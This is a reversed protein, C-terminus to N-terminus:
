KQYLGTTLVINGSGNILLEVKGASRIVHLRSDVLPILASSLSQELPALWPARSLLRKLEFCPDCPQRSISVIYAFDGGSKLSGGLEEPSLGEAALGAPDKILGPVAGSLNSADPSVNPDASALAAIREALDKAVPDDSEYLIRRRGSSGSAGPPDPPLYASEVALQDCGSQREWWAPPQAARADSRVADRALGAQLETSIGGVREGRNLAAVRSASLLLYMRNWPLATTEFQPRGAAYDIVAPDQTVILDIRDGILDRIDYATTEVFRIVTGEPDNAPQILIRGRSEPRFVYRRSLTRYPGSGLPWVSYQDSKAVAFSPEALLRPVRHLPQKFYVSLERDNDAAFSDIETEPNLLEAARSRWSEVVDPATVPLGDWFRADERLEFVWRHGRDLARWSGALATRVEEQCDITILTEYIHGFLLQESPNQPCPARDPHVPNLLAVSITDAKMAPEPVLRCDPHGTFLPGKVAPGGCAFFVLGSAALITM